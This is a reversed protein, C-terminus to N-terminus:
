EPIQQMENAAEVERLIQKAIPHGQKELDMLVLANTLYAVQAELGGERIKKLSQELPIIGQATTYDRGVQSLEFAESGAPTLGCRAVFQLDYRLM